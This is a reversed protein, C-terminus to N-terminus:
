KIAEPKIMCRCNVHLSGASIDDYDATMVGGEDGTFTDGKDLFNEEISVVTGDMERCYECTLDDDFAVWKMEVAGAQKWAEKTALNGVRFLETKAVAEARTTDAFDYISKVLDTAYAVGQGSSLAETLKEKLQDMTTQNYSEAFLSIAHELAAKAAPKTMDIGVADVGTAAIEGEKEYLEEMMPTIADITIKIWDKMNFMNPVGAKTHMAKSFLDKINALVEKMQEANLKHLIKKLEPEKATIRSDFDKWIYYYEDKTMQYFDKSKIKKIEKLKEAVAEAMKKSMNERMEANQAARTKIVRNVSKKSAGAFVKSPTNTPPKKGEETPSGLDAMNNGIKVMDGGEVPGLGMFERRAENTSIVPQSGVSAQMEQVRFNKDEPTPDKFTIYINKGFRPVYFENLYSCILTMKPKITRKAFVYDATEATARNTDSEATGLVTRSVRFGALIFDRTMGLLNVFDMDKQSTQTAKWHVGKPLFGTKHSNEVGQHSSEFAIKMNAVQEETTYETEFVGDMHAGALFFQRNYEMAYNDNDIWPAISQITGIGDYPDNPDPYKFHLVEYPKYRYKINDITYEYGTIVYPWSTKDMAVKVNAPNMIYIMDPKDTASKVGHLLWYANGTAELHMATMWKLEPGTQFPNVGDLIDLAEHTDKKEHNDGNIEYLEFDICSIESAIANIAAFVWGNLKQMARDPSIKKSAGDRMIRLPDNGVIDDVSFGSIGKAGFVLKTNQWLDKPNITIKNQRTRVISAVKAWFSDSTKAM